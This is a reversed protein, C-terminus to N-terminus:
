LNVVGNAMVIIQFTGREVIVEKFKIRNRGSDSGNGSLFFVTIGAIVSILSIGTILIGKFNRM